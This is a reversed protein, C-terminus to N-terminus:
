DKEEGTQPLQVPEDPPATNHHRESWAPVTVLIAAAQYCVGITADNGYNIAAVAPQWQKFGQCWTIHSADDFGEDQLFRMWTDGSDGDIHADSSEFKFQDGVFYKSDYYDTEDDKVIPKVEVGLGLSRAALMVTRDSGKLLHEVPINYHFTEMAEVNVDLENIETQLMIEARNTQDKLTIMLSELKAKEKPPLNAGSLQAQMKRMLKLQQRILELRQMALELQQRTLELWQRKSEGFQRLEEESQAKNFKEFIYSHQCTFGLVGGDRLFHPHDLAAKLNYYFPSNTIDMTSVMSIEDYYLNYTLTVRHGETVELVEHEVDSFFAAWRINQVPGDGTTHSRSVM